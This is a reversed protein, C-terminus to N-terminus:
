NNIHKITFHSNKIQYAANPFYNSFILFFSQITRRFSLAIPLEFRRAATPIISTILGHFILGSQAM